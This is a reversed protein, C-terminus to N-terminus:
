VLVTTGRIQREQDDRRILSFQLLLAAIAAEGESRAEPEAAM